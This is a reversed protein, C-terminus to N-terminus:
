WFPAVVTEVVSTGTIVLEDHPDQLDFSHVLTGWWDWYRYVSVAPSVDVASELALQRDNSIPTIRAENYSSTVPREYEYGTVHRIAIRWTM